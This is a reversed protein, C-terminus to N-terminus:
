IYINNRLKKKDIKGVDTKPLEELIIFSKPIKYKALKHSCYNKLEEETIKRVEKLTIFAIVKEGWKEDPIGVVAAENISSHECLWQEIELPYVNEGGSIIMDKKRGVIYYYGEEDRKALDGTHLWGNIWTEATALPNNWYGKFSHKGNILLEGVENDGAEMGDPKLLKIDNFMMPKGVSGKKKIAEEPTIFFNNPGAETLGYGEKFPWGKEAFKDYISLPCPAGGSLFVKMDPFDLHHFEETQQMMHYMTPVFLAITCKYKKLYRLAQRPEFQNGIVVTGGNLLIPISLANIGGTHFLPMYTLTIEESSLGWSIITNVANWDVSLHTLAVGKPKGTTGGTYIMLWPDSDDITESCNFDIINSKTNIESLSVVQDINLNQVINTFRENIILIKPSSDDLIYQLEHNSHRWNLPVFIAGIKGCAFMIAFLEAQNQAITAIRDGKKIERSLFFTAWRNACENLKSYTFSTGYEIDILAIKDPSLSARKSIWDM